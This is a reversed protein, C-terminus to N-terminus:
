GHRQVKRVITEKIQEHFSGASINNEGCIIRKLDLNDRKFILMHQNSSIELSAVKHM